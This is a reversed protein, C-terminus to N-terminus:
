SIRNGRRTMLKKAAGGAMRTAASAGLAKGAIGGIGSVGGSPAGGMISAAYNPIETALMTFAGFSLLIGLCSLISLNADERIVNANIYSIELGLVVAFLAQTLIFGGLVGVWGWFYQRTQPFIALAIFIPGVVMILTTAAKLTILTGVAVGLFPVGGILYFVLAVIAKIASISFDISNLIKTIGAVYSNILGDVLNMNEGSTGSITNGLWVPFETVTPVITTIYWSVSFAMFMICGAKFITMLADQIVVTMGEFYWYLSKMGIYIMWFVSIVAGMVSMVKTVNGMQTKAASDIAEFVPQAVQIDM